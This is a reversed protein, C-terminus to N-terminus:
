ANELKEKLNKSHHPSAVRRSLLTKGKLFVLIVQETKGSVLQNLRVSYVSDAMLLFMNCITMM